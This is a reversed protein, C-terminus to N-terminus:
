RVSVEIFTTDNLLEIKKNKLLKKYFDALYREWKEGSGPSGETVLGGLIAEVAEDFEVKEWADWVHEGLFRLAEELKTTSTQSDVMGLRPYLTQPDGRYEKPWHVYVTRPPRVTPIRPGYTKRAFVEDLKM